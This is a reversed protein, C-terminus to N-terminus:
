LFFFLYYYLRILQHIHHAKSECYEYNFSQLINPLDQSNNQISFVVNDLSNICTDIYSINEDHSNKVIKNNKKVVITVGIICILIIVFVVIIYRIIKPM